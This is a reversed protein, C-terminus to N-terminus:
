CPGVHSPCARPAAACGGDKVIWKIAASTAATGVPGVGVGLATLLSSTTLTHSVQGLIHTPVSWLQYALYDSSVSAPYGEPLFLAAARRQLTPLLSASSSPLGPQEEAGPPAPPAVAGGLSSGSGSGRAATAGYLPTAVGDQVEAARFALLPM